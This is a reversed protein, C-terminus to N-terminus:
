FVGINYIKRCLVCQRDSFSGFMKWVLGQDVVPGEVHSTHDCGGKPCVLSKEREGTATNFLPREIAVLAEGCVRCYKENM